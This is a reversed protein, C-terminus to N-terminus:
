PPRYHAALRLVDASSEPGAFAPGRVTLWAALRQEGMHRREQMASCPEMSVKQRDTPRDTQTDTQRDTQPLHHYAELAQSSARCVDGNWVDM